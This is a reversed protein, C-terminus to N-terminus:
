SAAACAEATAFLLSRERMRMRFARPRSAIEALLAMAERESMAAPKLEAPLHEIPFSEDVIVLIREPPHSFRLLELERAVAPVKAAKIVILTSAAMFDRVITLWDENADCRLSWPNSYVGNGLMSLRQEISGDSAPQLELPDKLLSAWPIGTAHRIRWFLKLADITSPGLYLAVPARSATFAYLVFAPVLTLIAVGILPFWILAIIILLALAYSRWSLRSPDTDAYLFHGIWHTAHLRSVRHRETGGDLHRALLRQSDEYGSAGGLHISAHTHIARFTRWAYFLAASLVSGAVAGPLEFLWGLSVPLLVAAAVFMGARPGLLARLGVQGRIEDLSAGLEVLWELNEDGLRRAAGPMLRKLRTTAKEFDDPSSM